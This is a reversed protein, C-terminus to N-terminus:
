DCTDYTAQYLTIPNTATGPAGIKKTAGGAAGGGSKSISTSPSSSSTSSTAKKKSSVAFESFHQTSVTIDCSSSDVSSPTNSSVGTTEWTNTSKNLTYVTVVPCGNSDSEVTSSKQVRLTMSANVVNSALGWNFGKNSSEYPYSVDVFLNINDNTIGSQTLLNPVGSPVSSGTEVVFWENPATGTPSRNDYSDVTLQKVGGYSPLLSTEVPVVLMQGPTYHDLPPSTANGLSIIPPLQAVGSITSTSSGNVITAAFTNTWTSYITSNLSPASTIVVPAITALNTSQPSVRFFSTGYLNTAHVERITTNGFVNYSSPITTMNIDYTGFLVNTIAIRGTTSDLDNAGNDTVTFSGSGYPNPTITYTAGGILTDSLDKAEVKIGGKFKISDSMGLSDSTTKSATKTATVTDSIG